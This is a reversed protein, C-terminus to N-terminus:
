FVLGQGDLNAPLVVDEVWSVLVNTIQSRDSATMTGYNVQLQKEITQQFKSKLDRDSFVHHGMEHPILCNMFLSSSQSYPIGILGLKM